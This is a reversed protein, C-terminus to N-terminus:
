EDRNRRYLLFALRVTRKDPTDTTLLTMTTLEGQSDIYGYGGRPENWTISTSEILERIYRQSYQRVERTITDLGKGDAEDPSVHFEVFGVFSRVTEYTRIDTFPNQLQTERILTVATSRDLGSVESALRDPGTERLLRSLAGGLSETKVQEHLYMSIEQITEFRLERVTESARQDRIDTVIVGTDPENPEFGEGSTVISSIYEELEQEVPCASSLGDICDCDADKKLREAYVPKSLLTELANTSPHGLTNLFEAKWSATREGSHYGFARVDIDIAPTRRMKTTLHARYRNALVRRQLEDGELDQPNGIDHQAAALYSMQQRVSETGLPIPYPYPGVSNSPPTETSVRPYEFQDLLETHVFVLKKNEAGQEPSEFRDCVGALMLPKINQSFNTSEYRSELEAQPLAYMKEHKREAQQLLSLIEASPKSRYIKWRRENYHPFREAYEERALKRIKRGGTAM